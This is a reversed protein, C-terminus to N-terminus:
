GAPVLRFYPLKQNANQAVFVAEVARGILRPESQIPDTLRSYLLPGEALRIAVFTYPAEASFSQHEPRRIITFSVITGHGSAREWAVDGCQCYPCCVRPFYIAHGCAPAQCRQLMLVENNCGEWFPRSIANVRPLPRANSLDTM